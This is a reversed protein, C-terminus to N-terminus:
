AQHKVLNQKIRIRHDSVRSASLHDSLVVLSRLLGQRVVTLHPLLRIANVVHAIVGSVQAAVGSPAYSM